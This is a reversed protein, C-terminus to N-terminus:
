ALEGVDFGLGLTAARPKSQQEFRGTAPLGCAKLNVGALRSARQGPGLCADWRKVGSIKAREQHTHPMLYVSPCLLGGGPM